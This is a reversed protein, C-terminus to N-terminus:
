EINLLKALVAFKSDRSIESEPCDCKRINLNQGCHLCLGKCDESCLITMPLELLLSERIEDSIDIYEESYYGIGIDDIQDGVFKPLPLYQVESTADLKISIPDLCRSCEMKADVSAIAKIYIKDIQRYIKLKIDVNSTFCAGEFELEM